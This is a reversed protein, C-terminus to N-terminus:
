FHEIFNEFVSDLFVDLCDDMMILYTEVWTHLSPEIYPLEDFYDVIFIFQFFFCMIIENTASFVNSLVWYGKMILTKSRDPILPGYRFMTFAIYLLGTALM